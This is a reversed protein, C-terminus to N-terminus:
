PTSDSPMTPSRVQHTGAPAAPAVSAESDPSVVTQLDDDFDILPAHRDEAATRGLKLQSAATEGSLSATTAATM